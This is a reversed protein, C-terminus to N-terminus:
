ASWQSRQQLVDKLVDARDTVLGDVGLDLLRTMEEAENVTWVHVDVGAQHAAQVTAATVVPLGSASVPVQLVDVGALARRVAAERHRRPLQCALVFRSVVGRGASTAVPRGLRRLAAKRRPDSFSTICVRDHAHTREIARVLPTIAGASKIDINLRAQPWTTLLEELRPIPEQGGIRARSVVSWPLETVMGEGDTVRDLTSDHFAVVVGDNTAHVDTELYRYGLAVANAFAAMSNELGELSFGRHALPVPGDHDLYPTRAM